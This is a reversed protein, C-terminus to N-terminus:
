CRAREHHYSRSTRSYQLASRCELLVNVPQPHTHRIKTSKRRLLKIAAAASPPSCRAGRKLPCQTAHGGAPRKATASFLVAFLIALVAATHTLPNPWASVCVRRVTVNHTKASILSATALATRRGCNASHLRGVRERYPPATRRTPLSKESAGPALRADSVARLIHRRTWVGGAACPFRPPHNTWLCLPYRGSARVM